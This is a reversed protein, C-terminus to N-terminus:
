EIRIEEIHIGPIEGIRIEPIRETEEPSEEGSKEQGSIEQVQAESQESSLDYWQWLSEEGATLWSTWTEDDLRGILQLLWACIGCAVLLGTILRLFRGYEKGGAFLQLFEILLALVIVTKIGSLM